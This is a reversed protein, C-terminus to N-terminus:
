GAVSVEALHFPGNRAAFAVLSTIRMADDTALATGPDALVAALGDRAVREALPLGTTSTRLIADVAARVDGTLLLAVRDAHLRMQLAAGKQGERSLGRVTADSRGLADALWPSALSTAKDVAHRAAFVKRSARVVKEIKALQDIGPVLTVLDVVTEATGAYRGFATYVSRSTGLVTTDVDLLPHDCALHALEVALAFSLAAGELHRPGPEAHRVGVLVVPPETPWAGVGWAGDGRYLFADPRPVQLATALAALAAAAEPWGEALPQLGRVLAERAPPHVAELQARLDALWGAGGPHLAALESPSLWARHGPTAADPATDGALLRELHTWWTVTAEPVGDADRARALVGGHLFGTAVAKRLADLRAAGDARRAVELWVEAAPRSPQDADEAHTALRSLVDVADTSADLHDGLVAALAWAADEDDPLRALVQRWARAVLSWAGVRAALEALVRWPDDDLPPHDLEVGEPDVSLARQWAAEAVERDGDEWAWTGARWHDAPLPTGDLVHRLCRWAPEAQGAGRWAQAAQRWAAQAGDHHEVTRLAALTELGRPTDSLARGAADAETWRGLAALVGTWLEPADSPPHPFVDPLPPVGHGDLVAGLRDHLVAAAAQPEQIARQWAPVPEVWASRDGATLRGQRIAVGLATHAAPADCAVWAWRAIDPWCTGDRGLEVAEAWAQVAHGNPGHLVLHRGLVAWREPTGALSLAVVLAETEDGLVSVTVDVEPAVLHLRSGRRRRTLPGQVRRWALHSGHHAALVVDHDSVGVWVPVSPTTGDDTPFCWTSATELLVLWRHAPDAPVREAFWEPGRAAHALPAREPPVPPPAPPDIPGGGRPAEVWQEVLQEAAKRSGTRLPWSRGRVILADTVWGRDHRLTDTGGDARVWADDDTAAVTWVRDATVAVWVPALIQPSGLTGLPRTGATRLAGLVPHSTHRAIAAAVPAPLSTM